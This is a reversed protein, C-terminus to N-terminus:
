IKPKSLLYCAMVIKNRQSIWKRRKSIVPNAHHHGIHGQRFCRGSLPGQQTVRSGNVNNTEIENSSMIGEYYSLTPSLTDGCWYNISVGDGSHNGVM